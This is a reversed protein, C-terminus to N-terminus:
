PESSDNPATAPLTADRRSARKQADIITDITRRWAYVDDPAVDPSTVPTLATLCVGAGIASLMPTLSGRVVDEEDARDARKSKTRRRFLDGSM